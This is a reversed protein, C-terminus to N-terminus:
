RKLDAAASRSVFWHVGGSEPRVLAAPLAPDDSGPQLVQRLVGAKSEGAALFAIQEAANILPLTFTLRHAQLHSAWTAVVLRQQERLADSGPFLSATHGDEGLGLLVLDIMPKWAGLARRVTGEYEEAAEEPPAEGRMRHIQEAPISVRDLLTERAMRYNSEEHDSPVCREDGWFVSWREWAVSDVYSPSALLEYLRRPTSGGSLAISFSGKEEVRRKALAAVYEAAAGATDEATSLIHLEPTAM